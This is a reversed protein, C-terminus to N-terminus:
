FVRGRQRGEQGRRRQGETQLSRLKAQQEPTLIQFVEGFARASAVAVDAEAQGLAASKDRVLAEDFTGSTIAARLGQRATSVHDALSQWEDRHSQAIAKIQDKQADGLNLQSAIMQIPGLISGGFGPFGPGEPGGRRGMFLGTAGSTNQSYAFLGAGVSLAIVAAGAALGMRRIKYTM